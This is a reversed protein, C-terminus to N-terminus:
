QDVPILVRGNKRYLGKRAFEFVENTVPDKYKYTEKALLLELKELVGRVYEHVSEM